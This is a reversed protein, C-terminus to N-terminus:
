SASTAPNFAAPSSCPHSITTALICYILLFSCTTSLALVVTIIPTCPLSHQPKEKSKTPINKPQPQTSPLLPLLHLSHPLHLSLVFSTIFASKTNNKREDLRVRADLKSPDSAKRQRTREEDERGEERSEDVEFSFEIEEERENASELDDDFSSPTVITLERV